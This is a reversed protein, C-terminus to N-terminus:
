EGIRDRGQVVKIMWALYAYSSSSYWCKMDSTETVFTMIFALVQAGVIFTFFNILNLYSTVCRYNQFEHLLPLSVKLKLRGYAVFFHRM